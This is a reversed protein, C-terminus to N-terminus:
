RVVDLKQSIQPKSVEMKKHEEIADFELKFNKIIPDHRLLSESTKLNIMENYKMIHTAKELSMLTNVGIRVRPDSVLTPAIRDSSGSAVLGSPKRLEKAISRVYNANFEVLDEPINVHEERLKVM